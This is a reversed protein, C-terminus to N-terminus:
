RPREGPRVRRAVEDAFAFRGEVGEEMVAVIREIRQHAETVFSQDSVAQIAWGACGRSLRALNDAHEADVDFEDRLVAAVEAIPMPRLQVLQCRSFVTPLVSEGDEALLLLVVDPPPEELLKLLANAAEVTMRGADQIIFVQRLGEYPRLHAASILDRVADIGIAARPGDEDGGVELIRVDPFNNAAVRRRCAEDNPACVLVQAFSMALTTKGVHEPGTFLYAHHLRDGSIARELLRVAAAQGHISFGSVLRGRRHPRRVDRAAPAADGQRGERAGRRPPREHQLRLGNLPCLRWLRSNGRHGGAHARAACRRPHARRGIRLVERRHDAYLRSCGRCPQRRRRRLARRVVRSPHQRGMGGDVAVYTRVGPIDKIAGVTYLAVGAPGAISRGPEIVLAPADFGYRECTERLAGVITEAYASPPPPDDADTYAIAYGGGPSFRHLQLGEERMMSAFEMVVRVADDYPELEFIPSGLHFHLGQLDINAAAVARRVADAAHGTEIAFGFKSDLTGTTTYRHTHPDISPSVRILAKQVIGARRAEEDVVELEHFSDLVFHGIGWEIAERVELPSKNNGHFYVHAPDIGAARLVAVEGGSVVDFGLGYSALLKALPVNIFAKCAYVVEAGDYRSGFADQFAGAVGALTAEDFVYLPTGYARALEVADCGGITLRGANNVAATSPFVKTYPVASM